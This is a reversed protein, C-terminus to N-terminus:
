HTNGYGSKARASVVAGEGIHRPDAAATLINLALNWTIVQMDGYYHKLPLLNYGMGQLGKQLEYSLAYPEFIVWDPKYQHHYRMKSVMSIAGGGEFFDLSALLIMTPIRSGGPTGLIASQYSTELFTPAMSSLPRKGPKIANKEGHRLGFVNETNPKIAFDDMEDNLLVGTGDAVVSSGFIYNITLTASVKNGDADIISFHTTQHEDPEYAKDPLQKNDTAQDTKIYQKLFEANQKSLLSDVDVAEFDSDGMLEARQWFSLRMTEIIYHLRQLNSLHGLDYTELINLMTILGIGGASPLPTTIINMGHYRGILPERRKIKYNKLDQHQWIGGTKNVFSVLRNATEGEYFGKHGYEALRKLTKALDQQYLREGLKYPRNGNLFIEATSPYKKLTELRNGMNIMDVFQQDVEFGHEAFDIAPKLVDALKLRGYHSSIYVLAAPEGPIACSKGGTLSLDPIPKGDHGLYMDETALLPAVERGDILINKKNKVDFLLWFGGGGLGSHYPEVVGLVASVAVAADFANGGNSLINLGAKTALPHASVVAYGPPKRVTAFSNGAIQFCLFVLISILFYPSKVRM